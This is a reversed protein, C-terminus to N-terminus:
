RRPTSRSSSATPRSWARRWRPRTVSEGTLSPPTLSRRSWPTIITEGQGFAMELNDGTTWNDYPFATPYEKHQKIREAPSDVKALSQEYLDVGTPQGYGYEAAVNEIPQEGYIGRNQWFEFGLNYFFVDSSVTLATNLDIPGPQAESDNDTM